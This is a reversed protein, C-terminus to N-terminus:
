FISSVKEARLSKGRHLDSPLCTYSILKSILDGTLLWREVASGRGGFWVVVVLSVVSTCALNKM